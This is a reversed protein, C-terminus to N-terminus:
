QQPPFGFAPTKPQGAASSPLASPSAANSKTSSSQPAFPSAPAQGPQGAKAPQAANSSTGKTDSPNFVFKWEKYILAESFKAYQEPFKDKKLPRKESLSHVGTIRATVNSSSVSGANVVEEIFGWEETNTMPDRYIKRLHRKIVPSRSDLLLDELSKPYEKSNGPSSNYYSLIARRFQEGVHLLEAEKERQSKIQWVQATGAMIMGALAVAFLAWLYIFGNEGQRM